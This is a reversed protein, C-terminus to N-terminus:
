DKAPREGTLGFCRSATTKDIYILVDFEAPVVRPQFQRDMALAGISRFLHPRALWRAAPDTASPRLDLAFDALGADRFTKELSGAPPSNLDNEATLGAGPRIATYQGEGAAFGVVVMEKGYKRALHEGM